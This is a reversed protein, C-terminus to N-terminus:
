SLPLGIQPDQGRAVHPLARRCIVFCLVAALLAPITVTTISYGVLAPNHYLKDTALAMLVPGGTAGIVANTLGSISAALGRMAAPAVDQLVGYFAISLMPYALKSVMILAVALGPGPMFAAGASALMAATLLVMLMAKGRVGSRRAAQDTFVGGLLTAAPGGILAAGGVMAGVQLPTLGFHRTFFMPQWANVGYFNMSVLAYALYFPLFIAWHRRLVALTEGATFSTARGGASRARPTDPMLAVLAVVLVGATGCFLFVLRWSSLGSIFPAHAFGGQSSVTMIGGSVIDGLGGALVQGLLYVGMPQGRKEPPFLDSITSVAVPVLTAEGLGVLLRTAFLAGFTTALGGAMTAGTWVALGFVLLWKRSTRDSVYGCALGATAYFLSFSLGQLLSIQLDSVHLDHKVSDVTLGLIYRDLGAFVSACFLAFVIWWAALPRPYAHVQAPAAAAVPDVPM